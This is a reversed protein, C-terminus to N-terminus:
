HYIERGHIEKYLKREMFKAVYNDGTDIRWAELECDDPLASIRLDRDDVEYERRTIADFARHRREIWQKLVDDVSRGHTQLFKEKIEMKLMHRENVLDQALFELQEKHHAIQREIEAVTKRKNTSDTM